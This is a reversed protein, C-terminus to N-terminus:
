RYFAELFPKGLVIADVPFQDRTPYVNFLCVKQDNPGIVQDVYDFSTLTIERGGIGFTMNPMGGIKDCHVTCFPGRCEHEVSAYIKEPWNGPLGIFWSSTDLGALTLNVFSESTWHTENQWTLYQAEAAWVQDSYNSLPLSLFDSSVYKESIGGFSIEGHRDDPKRMDMVGIPLELAFLNHDLVEAAVMMTWPSPAMTTSTSPLPSDFRPALGLAGDYGFYFSLFGLPNAQLVNIFYQHELELGAIRFTDTAMDGIFRDTGYVTWADPFVGEYTSSENAYFHLNKEPKECDGSCDASPVFLTDWALDILLRFPQPPTGLAAPM